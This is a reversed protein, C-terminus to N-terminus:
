RPRYGFHIDKEYRTSRSRFGREIGHIHGGGDRFVFCRTFVLCPSFVCCLVIFTVMGVLGDFLSFFFSTGIALIWLLM